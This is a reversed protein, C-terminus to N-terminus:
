SHPDIERMVAWTVTVMSGCLEELIDFIRKQQPVGFDEFNREYAEKKLKMMKLRIEDLKEIIDKQM